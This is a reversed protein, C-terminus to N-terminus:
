EVIMKGNMIRWHGPVTCVFPYEGPENPAIFMLTEVNDPDVLKSAIIIEPIEPIYNKEIGKPDRAMEDAAKGVIELSGAKAILINHQMFDKNEFDIIVPQGAKVKFSAIDYKMEHPIVGIKIVTANERSINSNDSEASSAMFTGLDFEPNKFSIYSERGMRGRLWSWGVYDGVQNDGGMDNGVRVNAPTVNEKFLGPTKVKGIEKNDIILKM